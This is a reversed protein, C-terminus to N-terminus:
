TGSHSADTTADERVGARHREPDYSDRVGAPLGRLAASEQPLGKLKRSLGFMLGAVYALLAQTKRPPLHIADGSATRVKFGGFLALSVM